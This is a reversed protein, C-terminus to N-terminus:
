PAPPKIPSQKLVWRVMGEAQTMSLNPHPIMPTNYTWPAWYGTGGTIVKRALHQLSGPQTRYHYAVWSFAPGIKRSHVAHCTFCGAQTMLAREHHMTGHAVVVAALASLVLTMTMKRPIPMTRAVAAHVPPSPYRHTKM